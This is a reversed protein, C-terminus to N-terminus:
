YASGQPGSESHEDRRRRAERLARRSGPLPANQTGAVVAAAALSGTDDVDDPGVQVAGAPHDPGGGGKIGTAKVVLVAILTTVPIALV